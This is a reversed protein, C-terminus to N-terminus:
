DPRSVALLPGARAAKLLDLAKSATIGISVIDTRMGDAFAGDNEASGDYTGNEASDASPLSMVIVDFGPPADKSGKLDKADASDTAILRLSSGMNIAETAGVVGVSVVTFGPPLSPAKTLMARPIMGDRPIPATASFGEAEEISTAMGGRPTGSDVLEVRVDAGSLKRGKEIKRAAVVVPMGPSPAVFTVIAVTLGACLLAFGVDLAKKLARRQQLSGSAGAAVVGTGASKRRGSLDGGFGVAALLSSLLRFM